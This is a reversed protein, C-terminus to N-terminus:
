ECWRGQSSAKAYSPCPWGRDYEQDEDDLADYNAPSCERCLPEGQVIVCEDSSVRGGCVGCKVCWDCDGPYTCDVFPVLEEDTVTATDFRTDRM